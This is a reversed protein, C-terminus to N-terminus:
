PIFDSNPTQLPPPALQALFPAVQMKIKVAIKDSISCTVAKLPLYKGLSDNQKIIKNFLTYKLPPFLAYNVLFNQTMKFKLNLCWFIGM